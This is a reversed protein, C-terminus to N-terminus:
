INVTWTLALQDNVDLTADANLVTEFVMVGGAANTGCSFFGAKHVAGTPGTATFTKSGTYTTAAPTHAYTALARSLGLTTFEGTLVSDGAAPAGANITLGIFRAPGQGPLLLMASTGAPTTGVGDVATWFQDITLVTASNTGINGYVPEVTLSTLPMVVRMGKFADVTWGAATKTITNATISTAAGLTVATNGGLSAAEWDLGATTRLNHSVGLDEISGDARIIAAHLENPRVIALREVLGRPRRVLVMAPDDHIQPLVDIGGPVYIRDRM